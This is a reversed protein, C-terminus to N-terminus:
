IVHLDIAFGFLGCVDYYPVHANSAPYSFSGVVRSLGLGVRQQPKSISVCWLRYSEEPRTILGDCLGRGSLVCCESCVFMWAVPLIRVRLVLLRGAVSRRRLGRTWQSAPNRTPLGEERCGRLYEFVFVEALLSHKSCACTCYTYEWRAWVYGGVMIVRCGGMYLLIYNCNIWLVWISKSSGVMNIYRCLYLM